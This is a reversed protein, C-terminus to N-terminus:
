MTCGILYLIKLCSFTILSGSVSPLSATVAVALLLMCCASITYPLLILRVVCIM